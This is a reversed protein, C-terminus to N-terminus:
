LESNCYIRREQQWQRVQPLVHWVSCPELSFYCLERSLLYGKYVFLAALHHIFDDGVYGVSISPMEAEADAM